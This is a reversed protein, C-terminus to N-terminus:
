AVHNKDRNPKEDRRKQMRSMFFQFTAKLMVALVLTIVMMGAGGGLTNPTRITLNTATGAIIVGALFIVSGNWWTPRRPM